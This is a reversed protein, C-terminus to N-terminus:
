LGTDVKEATTDNADYYTILHYFSDYSVLTRDSSWRYLEGRAPLVTKKPTGYKKSLEEVIEKQKKNEILYYAAKILAPTESRKGKYVTSFQYSLTAEIGMVIVNDYVVNSLNKDFNLDEDYPETSYDFYGDKEEAAIVQDKSAGWKSGRFDMILKESDEKSQQSANTGAEETKMNEANTCAALFFILIYLIWTMKLKDM